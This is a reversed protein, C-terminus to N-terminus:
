NAKIVVDDFYLDMMQRAHEAGLMINTLSSAPAFHSSSSYLRSGDLWVEVTTWSWNPRVHVKLAYWRDLSTWGKLKVYWWGGSGNATRLWLSGEGNKRFVDFVRGSDNWLRVYPVNSGILGERDVNFLGSVWVDKAQWGIWKRIYARSSWTSTVHLSGSCWGSVHRNTSVSAWADGERVVQSWSGFGGSEFNDALIVSGPDSNWPRGATGDCTVGRVPTAIVMPVAALLVALFCRVVWFLWPPTACSPPGSSGTKTKV